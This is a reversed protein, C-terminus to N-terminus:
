MWFILMATSEPMHTRGVNCTATIPIMGKMEGGKKRHFRFADLPIKVKGNEMEAQYLIGDRAYKLSDMHGTMQRGDVRSRASMERVTLELWSEEGSLHLVAPKEFGRDAMSIGTRGEEPLHLVKFYVKWDGEEFIELPFNKRLSEIKEAGDRRSQRRMNKVMSMLVHFEVNEIQNRVNETVEEEPLKGTDICLDYGTMDLWKEGTHRSYYRAREKDARDIVKKAKDHSFSLERELRGIRSAEDATDKM